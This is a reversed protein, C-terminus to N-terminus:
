RTQRSRSARLVRAARAAHPAARTAPASASHGARRGTGNRGGARRQKGKPYGRAPPQFRDLDEPDILWRGWLWTAPLRQQQCWNRVTRESVEVPASRQSLRRTAQAITLFQPAAGDPAARISETRTKAMQVQSGSDGGASLIKGLAAVNVPGSYDRLGSDDIQRARRVAGGLRRRAAVRGGSSVSASATQNM